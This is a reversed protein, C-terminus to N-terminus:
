IRKARVVGHKTPKHIVVNLLKSNNSIDDIHVNFMVKVQEAYAHPLDNKARGGGSREPKAFHVLDRSANCRGFHQLQWKQVFDRSVDLDELVTRTVMLLLQGRYWRVVGSVMGSKRTGAIEPDAKIEAIRKKAEDALGQQQKTFERGNM